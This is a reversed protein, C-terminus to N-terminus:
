YTGNLRKLEGRIRHNEEELRYTKKPYAGWVLRGILVGVAFFIAALCFVLPVVHSLYYVVSNM